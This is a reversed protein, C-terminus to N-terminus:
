VSEVQAADIREFGRARDYGFLEFEAGCMWEARPKEGRRLNEVFLPVSESTVPDTLLPFGEGSTRTTRQTM